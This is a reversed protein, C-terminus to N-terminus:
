SFCAESTLIHSANYQVEPSGTDHSGQSIGGLPGVGTQPPDTHPATWHVTCSLIACVAECQTVCGDAEAAPQVVPLGITAHLM